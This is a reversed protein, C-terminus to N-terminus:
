AVAIATEFAVVPGIRRPGDVDGRAGCEGIPQGARRGGRLASPGSRITGRATEVADTAASSRRRLGGRM